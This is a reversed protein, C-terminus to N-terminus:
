GGRLEAVLRAYAGASDDGMSDMALRKPSVGTRDIGHIAFRPVYSGWEYNDFLSWHVYAEVPVGSEALAAVARVVVTHAPAAAM